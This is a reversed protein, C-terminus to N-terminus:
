PCRVFPICGDFPLYNMRQMFFVFFAINEFPFCLRKYIYFYVHM